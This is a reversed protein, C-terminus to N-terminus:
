KAPNDVTPSRGEEYYRLLLHAAVNGILQRIPLPGDAEKDPEHGVNTMYWRNLGARGDIEVFGITEAVGDLFISITFDDTEPELPSASGGQDAILAFLGPADPENVRWAANSKGENCLAPPTQVHGPAALITRAAMLAEGLLNKGLWRTPNEARPDAAGVGIGWIRDYPSAEVLHRTGTALLMELLHPNQAFKERCGVTVINVRKSDWVGADFNRVKRGLTKQAKPDSTQLVQEAVDRCDFLVAKSYMMFQEVCGFSVGRVTFHAPHWNSLFDEKGFFFVFRSTIRM